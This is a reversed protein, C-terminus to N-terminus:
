EEWRSEDIEDDSDYKKLDEEIIEFTTGIAGYDKQLETKSFAEQIFGYSLLCFFFIFTMM